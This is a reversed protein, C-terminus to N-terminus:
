STPINIDLIKILRFTSYHRSYPSLTKLCNCIIYSLTIHNNIWYKQLWEIIIRELLAEPKQTPYGLRENAQSNIPPIDIWIDAIPKGRQEDLYRKGQPVTGPKAGCGCPCRRQRRRRFGPRHHAHGEARGRLGAERLLRDRPDLRTPDIRPHGREIAQQLTAIAEDLKGLKLRAGVGEAGVSM